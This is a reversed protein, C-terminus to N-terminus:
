FVWDEACLFGELSLWKVQFHECINPIRAGNKKLEEETVVTGRLVSASAILFPDAFPGGVLLKKKDLNQQFHRVSYIRRVFDLEPATPDRFFGRSQQTLRAIESAEFRRALEHRVESVSLLMGSNAATAYRAWFSPFRDPYYHNLINSLSNTDFVYTM